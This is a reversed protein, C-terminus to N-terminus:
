LQIGWIVPPYPTGRTTNSFIAAQSAKSNALLDASVAAKRWLRGSLRSLGEVQYPLSKYLRSFILSPNLFQILWASNPGEDGTQVIVYLCKTKVTGYATDTQPGIHLFNHWVQTTITIWCIPHWTAVLYVSAAFRACIIAAMQFLIPAMKLHDLTFFYRSESNLHFQLGKAKAEKIKNNQHVAPLTFKACLYCKQTSANWLQMLGAWSIRLAIHVVEPPFPRSSFTENETEQSLIKKSM